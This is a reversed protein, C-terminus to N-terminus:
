YVIHRVIREPRPSPPQAWALHVEIFQPYTDVDYHRADHAMRFTFGTANRVLLEYPTEGPNAAKPNSVSIGVFAGGSEGIANLFYPSDEANSLFAKADFAFQLIHGKLLGELNVFFSRQGDPRLLAGQYELDHRMWACDLWECLPLNGKPGQVSFTGAPTDVEYSVLGDGLGHSAPWSYEGRTPKEARKGTHFKKWAFERYADQAYAPSGECLVLEGYGRDSLKTYAPWPLVGIPRGAEDYRASIAALLYTRVSDADFEERVAEEIPARDVDSDPAAPQPAKGAQGQEAADADARDEAQATEPEAEADANADAMPTEVGSEADAEATEPGAGADADAQTAESETEAVAPEAPAKDAEVQEETASDLAATNVTGDMDPAEAKAGADEGNEPAPAPSADYEDAATDAPEEQGASAEEKQRLSEIRRDVEHEVLVDSVEALAEDRLAAYHERLYDQVEPDDQPSAAKPPRTVGFRQQFKADCGAKATTHIDAILQDHRRKFAQQADHIRQQAVAMDKRAAELGESEERRTQEINQLQEQDAREQKAREERSGAEMQRVERKKRRNRFVAIAAVVAVVIVLLVILEASSVVMM